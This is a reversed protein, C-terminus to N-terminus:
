GRDSSRVPFDTANAGDNTQAFRAPQDEPCLSQDPPFGGAKGIGRCAARVCFLEEKIMEGFAPAREKRGLVFHEQIVERAGIKSTSLYLCDFFQHDTLFVFEESKLIDEATFNARDAPRFLGLV